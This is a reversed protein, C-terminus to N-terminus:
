EHRKSISGNSNNTQDQRGKSRQGQTAPLFSDGYFCAKRRGTWELPM